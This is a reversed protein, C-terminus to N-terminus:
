PYLDDLSFIFHFSRGHTDVTLVVIAWLIEWGKSMQIKGCKKDIFLLVSFPRSFEFEGFRPTLIAMEYM